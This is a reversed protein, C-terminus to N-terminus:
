MAFMYMFNNKKKRAVHQLINWERRLSYFTIQSAYPKLLFKILVEFVPMLIFYRQQLNAYCKASNAPLLVHLCLHVIWM